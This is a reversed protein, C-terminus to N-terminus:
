NIAQANDNGKKRTFITKYREPSAKMCESCGTENEPDFPELHVDLDLEEYMEILESLRPEDMTSRMEWGEETLSAKSTM